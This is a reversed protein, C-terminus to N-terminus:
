QKSKEYALVDSHITQLLKGSNADWIRASHGNRFHAILRSEDESYQLDVGYSPGAPVNSYECLQEGSEIDLLRASGGPTAALVANRSALYVPGRPLNKAPFRKRLELPRLGYVCVANQTTVLLRDQPLLQFAHSNPMGYYKTDPIRVSGLEKGSALDMVSLQLTRDKLGAVVVSLDGEADILATEITSNPQLEGFASATAIRTASDFNWDQTNKAYYDISWFYKGDPSFRLKTNQDFQEIVEGDACRMLTPGNSGNTFCIFQGNPSFVTKYVMNYSGLEARLKQDRLNWLTKNYGHFVAYQSCPSFDVFDRGPLRDQNRGLIHLQEADRDYLGLEYEYELAIFRDNPSFRISRVDWNGDGARTVDYKQLLKGSDVDFIAAVLNRSSESIGGRPRFAILVENGEQNLTAATAEMNSVQFRHQLAGQDFMAIFRTSSGSNWVAPRNIHRESSRRYVLQVGDLVDPAIKKPRSLDQWWRQAAQTRLPQELELGPFSPIPLVIGYSYKQFLGDFDASSRPPLSKISRSYPESGPFSWDLSSSPLLRICENADVDFLGPGCAIALRNRGVAVATSADSSFLLQPPVYNAMRAIQQLNNIEGVPNEFRFLDCTGSGLFALRKGSNSVKIAKVSDQTLFTRRNNLYDVCVSKDGVVFIRGRKDLQFERVTFELDQKLVLQGDSVNWGQLAGNKSVAVLHRGDPSFSLDQITGPMASFERELSGDKSSHLRASQKGVGLALLSESPHFAVHRDTSELSQTAVIKEGTDCRYINIETIDSGTDGWYETMLLSGNPSFRSDSFLFGGSGEPTLKPSDALTRVKKLYAFRDSMENSERDIVGPQQSPPLVQLTDADILVLEEKKRSAAILFREDSTFRVTTTYLDDAFNAEALPRDEGTRFLQLKKGEERVQVFLFRDGSSHLKCSGSIAPERLVQRGSSCDWVAVHHLAQTVLFKEDASFGITWIPNVHPLEVKSAKQQASIHLALILVIPLVTLALKRQCAM